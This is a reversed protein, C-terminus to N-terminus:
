DILTKYAGKSAYLWEIEAVFSITNNQANWTLTTQGEQTAKVEWICNAMIDDASWDDFDLFQIIYKKGIELTPCNVVSWSIPLDSIGIDHGHNTTVYTITKDENLLKFFIDPNGNGEVGTDWSENSSDLMPIKTLKISTIKYGIPAVKITIAKYTYDSGYENSVTLSVNYTGPNYVYFTPEFENSVNENNLKWEYTVPLSPTSSYNNCKIAWGGDIQSTTCTFSATPKPDDENGFNHPDKRCSDLAIITAALCCLLFLKKM